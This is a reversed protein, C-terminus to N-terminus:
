LDLVVEDCPQSCCILVSRGRSARSPRPRLRYGRRHADDRVQPVRRHPMVLRVPVDSAEALELLSGCRAFATAYEGFGGDISYGMNEQELCLTEWGSVCFDCTGCAYGLWPGTGTGTGISSSGATQNSGYGALRQGM